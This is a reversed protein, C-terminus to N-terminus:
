TGPPAGVPDRRFRRSGRTRPRDVSRSGSPSSAGGPHLQHRVQHRDSETTATNRETRVTPLGPREATAVIISATPVAVRWASTRPGEHVGPRCATVDVPSPRASLSPCGAGESWGTSSGMRCCGSPEADSQWAGDGARRSAEASLPRSARSTGPSWRAARPTRSIAADLGISIRPPTSTTGSAKQASPQYTCAESWRRAAIDRRLDRVSPQLSRCGTM